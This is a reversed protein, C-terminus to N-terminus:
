KLNRAQSVAEVVAQGMFKHLKTINNVVGTEMVGNWLAVMSEGSLLKSFKYVNNAQEVTWEGTKCNDVIKIYVSNLKDNTLQEIKSKTEDFRDLVDEASVQFEYAKVFDNLSIAAESGIFGLCMAYFGAPASTGAHSSPTMDANKLVNNLREYSRPSPYVKGPEIAGDHRLHANNQRIFEILVSDIGSDNAWNIWDDVTPELDVVWFRDLLAPDMENVQYDASDNICAVIRTDEHLRHGNLERDLVIQFAAQM